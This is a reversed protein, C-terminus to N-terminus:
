KTKKRKRTKFAGAFKYLRTKDLKGIDVITGEYLMNRIERRAKYIDMNHEKRYEELTFGLEFYKEFAFLLLYYNKKIKRIILTSYRIKKPKKNFIIEKHEDYFIGGIIAIVGSLIWYFDIVVILLFNVNRFVQPDFCNTFNILFVSFFLLFGYAYSLTPGLPGAIHAGIMRHKERFALYSAPLLISLSLCLGM